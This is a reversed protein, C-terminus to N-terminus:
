HVHTQAFEPLHYLVPFGPMSCVMPDCLTLCVPVRSVPEPVQATEAPSVTSQGDDSPMLVGRRSLSVPVRSVPEPFQATEAPSVTSQGNDSPM